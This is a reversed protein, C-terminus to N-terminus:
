KKKKEEDEDEEEEDAWQDGGDDQSYNGFFCGHFTDVGFNIAICKKKRENRHVAGDGNTGTVTHLITTIIRVLSVTHM